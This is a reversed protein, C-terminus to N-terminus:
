IVVRDACQEVSTIFTAQSPYLKDHNVVDTYCGGYYTSM